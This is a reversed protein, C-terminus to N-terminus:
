IIVMVLVINVLIFAHCIYKKLPILIIDKQDKYCSIYNNIIITDNFKTYYGENCSLCLGYNLSERSCNFCNQEFCKCKFIGEEIYYGYKCSDYCNGLYNFPAINSCELCNNAKEICTKCSKHCKDITKLETDNM